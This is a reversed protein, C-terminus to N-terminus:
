IDASAALCLPLCSVCLNASKAFREVGSEVKEEKREREKDGACDNVAIQGCRPGKEIETWEPLITQSKTGALSVSRRHM